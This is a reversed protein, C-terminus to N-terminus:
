QKWEFRVDTAKEILRFAVILIRSFSLKEFPFGDNM